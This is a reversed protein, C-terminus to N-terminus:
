LTEETNDLEGETTPTDGEEAPLDEPDIEETEYTFRPFSDQPMVNNFDAEASEAQGVLAVAGELAIRRAMEPSSAEINTNLIVRVRYEPM